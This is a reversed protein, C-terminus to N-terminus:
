GLIRARLLQLGLIIWGFIWLLLFVVALAICQLGFVSGYLQVVEQMTKPKDPGQGLSAAFFPTTLCALGWPAILIMPLGDLMYAELIDYIQWYSYIGLGLVTCAGLEFLIAVLAYAATSIHTESETQNELIWSARM